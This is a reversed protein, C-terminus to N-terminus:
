RIVAKSLYMSEILDKYKEDVYQRRLKQTPTLGGNQVTVEDTILRFERIREWPELSENAQTLVQQVNQILEPKVLLQDDPVGGDAAGLVRRAHDMDLFLLCGPFARNEAVVYARDILPSVTLAKEIPAPCVYKGGATKYLEKIRGTITLYGDIDLKGLDGTHLWSDADIAEATAATDKHYGAMINPGRALVEGKSSIAVEVGPLARGVTGVRNHGPCNTSIVPSSETLGYGQYVPVGINWFFSCLKPSLAAGGCIVLRLRGGLARRLKPFVVRQAARFRWGASGNMPADTQAMSLGWRGLARPVSGASETKSVMAAYVKELVRPVVTMCTPKVEGILRGVSKPDDAFWISVGRSICFYVVMREFVHALPLISLVRDTDCDMKFWEAAAHIQSVFNKHTLRVGKPVGTSGSTYIITATDDGRARECLRRFLMPQDASLQDGRRMLEADSILSGRKPGRGRIIAKSFLRRYARFSEASAQDSVFVLRINAHRIKFKVNPESTHSFLPVSVGGAALIALDAMLWWPSPEALIGVSQGRKLGLAVLGLAMRRTQEAFAETSTRAWGNGERENFAQANQYTNTVHRLM